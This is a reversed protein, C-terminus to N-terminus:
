MRGLPLALQTPESSAHDTKAKNESDTSRSRDALRKKEKFGKSEDRVPTKPCFSEEVLKRNGIGGFAVLCRYFSRCYHQLYESLLRDIRGQSEFAAVDDAWLM